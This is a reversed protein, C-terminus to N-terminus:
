SHEMELFLVNSSIRMGGIVTLNWQNENSLDCDPEM